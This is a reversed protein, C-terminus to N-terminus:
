RGALIRMRISGIGHGPSGALGVGGLLTGHPLIPIAGTGAAVDHLPEYENLHGALGVGMAKVMAERRVWQALAATRLADGQLLQLSAREGPSWFRAVLRAVPFSRDLREIDVGINAHASLALVEVHDTHAISLSIKQDGLFLEPAAHDRRAYRM